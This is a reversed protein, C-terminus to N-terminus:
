RRNSIRRRVRWDPRFRTKFSQLLTRHPDRRGCVWRRREGIQDLPLPCSRRHLRRPWPRQLASARLLPPLSLPWHQANPLPLLCRYLYSANACLTSTAVNSPRASTVSYPAIATRTPTSSIACSSPAHRASTSPASPSTCSSTPISLKPLSRFTSSVHACERSPAHSSDSPLWSPPRSKAPRQSLRASMRVPSERVLRRWKDAAGELRDALDGLTSIVESGRGERVAATKRKAVASAVGIM